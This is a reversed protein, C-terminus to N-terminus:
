TILTVCTYMHCFCEHYHRIVELNIVISSVHMVEIYVVEGNASSCCKQVVDNLTFYLKNMVARVSSDLVFQEAEIYSLSSSGDSLNRVDRMMSYRVARGWYKLARFLLAGDLSIRLPQLVIDLTKIHVLHMTNPEIEFVFQLVPIATKLRELSLHSNFGSNSPSIAVPFRADRHMDDLQVHMVSLRALYKSGDLTLCIGEISIDVLDGDRHASGTENAQNVRDTSEVVKILVAMIKLQFEVFFFNSLKIWRSNRSLYQRATRFSRLAFSSSAERSQALDKKSRAISSSISPHVFRSFDGFRRMPRASLSSVSGSDMIQLVRTLDDTTVHIRMIRSEGNSTQNLNDVKLFNGPIIFDSVDEIKEASCTFTRNEYNDILFEFTKALSKNSWIYNKWSRPGLPVWEDMGAQRFKLSVGTLHNELRVPPSHTIDRVTLVVCQDVLVVTISLLLLPSHENRRGDFQQVFTFQEGVSDPCISQYDYGREPASEAFSSDCQSFFYLWRKWQRAEYEAYNRHIRVFKGGPGNADHFAVLAASEGKNVVRCRQEFGTWGAYDRLSRPTSSADVSFPFVILDFTSQNAIIFRPMLTLLSTRFFVGPMYDVRVSYICNGVIIEGKNGSKLDICKNSWCREILDVPLAELTCKGNAASSEEWFSTIPRPMKHINLNNSFASPKRVSEILGPVSDNETAKVGVMAQPQGPSVLASSMSMLNWANQFQFEDAILVFYNSVKSNGSYALGGLHCVEAGFLQQYLYYTFSGAQVTLSIPSFGHEVIWSPLEHFKIRSDICLMVRSPQQLSFRLYSQSKLHKDGNATQICLVSISNFMNPWSHLPADEDSFVSEGIQVRCIIKCPITESGLASSIKSIARPSFHVKGDITPESYDTLSFPKIVFVLYMNAPSKFGASAKNGGLCVLSHGKYFKKYVVFVHKSSTTKLKEGTARFGLMTMWRPAKALRADVCVCVDANISIRFNIMNEHDPDSLNDCDATSIQVIGKSDLMSKPWSVFQIDRIDSYVQNISNLGYTEVYRFSSDSTTQLDYVYLEEQHRPLGAEGVSLTLLRLRRKKSSVLIPISSNGFFHMHGVDSLFRQKEPKFEMGTVSHLRKGGRSNRFKKPEDDNSNEPANMVGSKTEKRQTVTPIPDYLLNVGTKNVIWFQSFLVITRSVEWERKYRIEPPTVFLVDQYRNFDWFLDQSGQRSFLARRQLLASTICVPKTWLDTGPIALRFYLNKSSDLKILELIKGPQVTEDAIVDKNSENSGDFFQFGNDNEHLQVDIDFCGGTSKTYFESPLFFLESTALSSAQRKHVKSPSKVIESLLDSSTPQVAQFRVDCPLANIIKCPSYFVLDWMATFNAKEQM